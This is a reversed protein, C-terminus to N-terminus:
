QKGNPKTKEAACVFTDQPLIFSISHPSHLILSLSRRPMEISTHLCHLTGATEHTRVWFPMYIVVPTWWWMCIVFQVSVHFMWHINWMEHPRIPTPWVHTAPDTLDHGCINPRWEMWLPHQVACPVCQLIYESAAACWGILEARLKIRLHFCKLIQCKADIICFFFHACMRCVISSNKIFHEANQCQFHKALRFPCRVSHCNALRWWVLWSWSGHRMLFHSYYLLHLIFRVVRVIRM